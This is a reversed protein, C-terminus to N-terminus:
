LTTKINGESETHRKRHAAQRISLLETSLELTRVLYGKAELGKLANAIAAVKRGTLSSLRDYTLFVHKRPVRWGLTYRILILYIRLETDKLKPMFEDFLANPTKTWPLQNGKDLLKLMPM